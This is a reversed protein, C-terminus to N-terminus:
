FTALAMCAAERHYRRHLGGVEPRSRIPGAAPPEVPRGDPSAKNLGLHTRSENYYRVYKSLVRMLHRENFVIMHDLCERRISGILREVIGNQWPSRAQTMIDRVGFSKLRGRFGSVYVSGRDRLLAMGESAWPFIESLQRATWVDTPMHCVNFHVIRRTDVAMAVFVYLVKFSATPVVFFDVAVLGKSHNSIFTRRTQGRSRRTRKPMYRSVTAESVRLGLALLEGRIRPAGRLRNAAAIELILSQLEQDLSPRGPVRRSKRRWYARFGKRHWRVVIEPKVIALAERWNSWLRSLAIWFLRDRNRIAPRSVGRQLVNIQQRLALNELVLDRKSRCASRFFGVLASVLSLM